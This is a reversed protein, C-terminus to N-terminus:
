FSTQWVAGCCHTRSAPTPQPSRLSGWCRAGGRDGRQPESREGWGVGISSRSGIDIGAM